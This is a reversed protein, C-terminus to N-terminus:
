HTEPAPIRGPGLALAAAALGPTHPRSAHSIRYSDVMPADRRGCDRWLYAAQRDCTEPKELDATYCVACGVTGDCLETFSHSLAARLRAWGIYFAEMGWAPDHAVRLRLLRHEVAVAGLLLAVPPFARHAVSPHGRPHAGDM